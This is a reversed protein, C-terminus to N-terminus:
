IELLNKLVDESVEAVKHEKENQKNARLNDDVKIPDEQPSKRAEPESNKKNEKMAQEIADKLSVKNASMLPAKDKAISSIPLSQPVHKSENQQGRPKDNVEVLQGNKIRELIEKMSGEEKAPATNINQIPRGNNIESTPGNDRTFPKHSNQAQSNQGNHLTGVRSFNGQDRDSRSRDNQFPPKLIIKQGLHHTM